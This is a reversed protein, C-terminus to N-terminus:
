NPLKLHGHSYMYRRQYLGRSCVDYRYIHDKKNISQRQHQIGSNGKSRLRIRRVSGLQLSQHM